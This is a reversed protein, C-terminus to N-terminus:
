AAAEEVAPGPTWAGAAAARRGPLAWWSGLLADVDPELATWGGGPYPTLEGFWLEGDHEYFDVRLMDFGVALAAAAALLDDLRRPPPAPPGPRYGATWPLPQWDPTHFRIGHQAGRGTHVEVVRPVGAFVLVKLDVPVHGPVGVFEEVLLGPRARRYAWEENLRWYEEGVWGATRDALVAPDAAGAGVLVRRCSHNPKLVWHRPLGVEALERVDTGSWLTRPVRVLGPALRRASDKMALKDCTPALLARRDLCIRWNLKENFTRPRLLPPLRGTVQRYQRIRRVVPPVARSQRDATPM